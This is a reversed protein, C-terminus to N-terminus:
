DIVTRHSDNQFVSGSRWLVTDLQVAIAGANLMRDVQERTTVGGSAIVPVGFTIAQQLWTLAQPYLAAGFMRGTVLSEAPASSGAPLSGRMPSFSVASLEEPGMM